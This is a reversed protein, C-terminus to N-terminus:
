LGLARNTLAAGKKQAKNLKNAKTMTNLLECDLCGDADADQTAAWPKNGQQLPALTVSPLRQANFIAHRGHMSPYQHAGHQLSACALNIWIKKFLITM